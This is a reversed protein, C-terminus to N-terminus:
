EEGETEIVQVPRNYQDYSINKIMKRKPISVNVNPPLQEPVSMNVVPPLQEPVNIIPADTTINVVPTPQEPVNIIPTPMALIVQSLQDVAKEYASEMAECVLVQVEESIKEAEMEMAESILTVFDFRGVENRIFPGFDLTSLDLSKVESRVMERVEERVQSLIRTELGKMQDWMEDRIGTLLSLIEEKSISVTEGTEEGEFLDVLRTSM